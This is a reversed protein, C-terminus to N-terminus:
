SVRTIVEILALIQQSAEGTTGPMSAAVMLSPVIGQLEALILRSDETQAALLRETPTIMKDALGSGFSAFLDVRYGDDERVLIMRPNGETSQVTITHFEIDGESLTGSETATVDQSLFTGSGQAFGSWFNAAVEEDGERLARAVEGFTAGEALAALAAQGPVALRSAASFDPENLAAVLDNVAATPSEAGPGPTISPETAVPAGNCGALLLAATLAVVEARRWM